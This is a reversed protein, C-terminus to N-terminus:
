SDLPTTLNDVSIGNEEKSYKHLKYALFCVLLVMVGFLGFAVPGTVQMVTLGTKLVGFNADVMSDTFNTGREIYFIPLMAYTSNIFLDDQAFEYVTQLRQMASMSVGSYPEVDAFIDDASNPFIQQPPTTNYNMIIANFLTPDADLFHPKTMFLPLAEYTSMNIVGTWRDMYYRSNNPNQFKSEITDPALRYRRAEVGNYDITEGTNYGYAAFYLDYVYLSINGTEPMNPPNMFCDTANYEAYYINEAWPSVNETVVDTGNFYSDLWTIYTYNYIASYVRILDLDVQGTEMTFWYDQEITQEYSTNQGGVAIITNVSPDGGSLPSTQTVQYLIPDTYGWLLENVTRTQSFGGWAVDIVMYRMYDRLGNDTIGVFTSNIMDTEGFKYFLVAQQTMLSNWLLNWSALQQAQTYNLSAYSSSQCGQSTLLDLVGMYEVPKTFYPTNWSAVTSSSNYPSFPLPHLTINSLGWQQLAIEFQSCALPNTCNYYHAIYQDAGQLRQALASTPAFCVQNAITNNVGTWTTFNTWADLYPYWCMSIFFEFTTATLSSNTNLIGCVTSAQTANLGSNSLLTPCDVTNNSNFYLLTQTKLALLMFEKLGFFAGYIAEAAFQGIGADGSTGDLGFPQLSFNTSVYKVYEWVIFASENNPFSFYETIPYISNNLTSFDGTFTADFLQGQEFLFELNAINLLTSKAGVFPPTLSYNFAQYAFSNNGFISNNFAASLSQPLNPNNITYNSNWWYNIEPCGIITGNLSATSPQLGITTVGSSTWQSAALVSGACESPTTCSLFGQAIYTINGNLFGEPNLISVISDYSVTFYDALFYGILSVGTTNYEIAANVWITASGNSPSGFGYYIDNIIKTVAVPDTINADTLIDNLGSALLIPLLTAIANSYLENVLGTYLQTLANLAVLPQPATKLTYWLGMPGLNVTTILDEPNGGTLLNWDQFYYSVNANDPSFVYNSFNQYEQYNYAGTQMFTPVANCYVSEFPNTFNFFTYDRSVNAGLQGPIIGWFDQNSQQMVATQGAKTLIQNHIIGPVIIGVILFGIAFVVSIGTCIKLGYHPAM